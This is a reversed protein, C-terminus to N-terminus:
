LVFPASVLAGASSLGSYVLNYKAYLADIGFLDVAM